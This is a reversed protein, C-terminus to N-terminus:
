ESLNCSKRDCNRSIVLINIEITEERTCSSKPIIQGYFAKRQGIIPKLRSNLLKLDLILLCRKVTPEKQVSKRYAKIKKRKQKKYSWAECQCNLRSMSHTEILFFFFNKKKESCLSLKFSLRCSSIKSSINLPLVTSSPFELNLTKNCDVRQNASVMRYNIKTRSTSTDVKQLAFCSLKSQHISFLIQGNILARRKKSHGNILSDITTINLQIQYFVFKSNM